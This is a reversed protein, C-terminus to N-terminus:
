TPDRVLIYTVCVHISRINFVDQLDPLIVAIILLLETENM